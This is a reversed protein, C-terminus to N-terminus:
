TPNDICKADAQELIQWYAHVPVCTFVSTFFLAIGWAICFGMIIHLPIRMQRVTFIRGYQILISVKTLTLSM